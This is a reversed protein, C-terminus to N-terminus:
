GAGELVADLNVMLVTRGGDPKCFRDVYRKRGESQALRSVPEFREREVDLVESVADVLLGARQGGHGVVVFKASAPEGHDSFGFLARLNVLPILDGRLSAMGSIHDPTGPVAVIRDPKNIERVRDMVIGYEDGGLRFTVIKERIAQERSFHLGRDAEGDGHRAGGIGRYLGDLDAFSVLREPDLVMAMQRDRSLEAIHSVCDTEGRGAIRVPQHFRHEPVRDVESVQDVLIGYTLAEAQVVVIRASERIRRDSLGFIKGPDIVALLRNRVTMVGEVHPHANPVHLLEGYRLIERVHRVNMAYHEGGVRFVVLERSAEGRLDREGLRAGGAHARGSALDARPAATLRGADLVLILDRGRAVIGTVYGGGNGGIHSPPAMVDAVDVGTVELIRDTIVGVPSGHIEAVIMRSDDDYARPPMRFCRRIDVVPLVEGRLNRLGVWQGSAGPVTRMEEVRVIERVQRLRFAFKEAGAQFVVLDITRERPAGAAAEREESAASFGTAAAHDAVVAAAVADGAATDAASGSGATEAATGAEAAVADGAAVSGAAAGEAAFGAAVAEAGTVAVAADEAAVPPEPIGAAERASAEAKEKKRRMERKM